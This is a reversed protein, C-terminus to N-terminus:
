LGAAVNMGPMKDSKANELRFDKTLCELQSNNCKWNQM